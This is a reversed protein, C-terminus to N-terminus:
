MAKEKLHGFHGLDFNYCAYLIGSVNVNPSAYNLLIVVDPRPGEGFPWTVTKPSDRICM